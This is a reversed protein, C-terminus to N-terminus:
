MSCMVLVVLCPALQPATVYWDVEVSTSLWRRAGLVRVPAFVRSLMTAISDLACTGHRCPTNSGTLRLLWLHCRPTLARWVGPGACGRSQHWAWGCSPAGGHTEAPWFKAVVGGLAPGITAM